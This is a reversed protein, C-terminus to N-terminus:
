ELVKYPTEEFFIFNKVIRSSSNIRKVNTSFQNKKKQVLFPAKRM